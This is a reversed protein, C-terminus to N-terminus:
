KKKFISISLAPVTVSIYNKRDNVKGAKSQKVVKNNHGEGGFKPLDSSFIEKWKGESPVALKYNKVDVPTFNCIILLTDEPKSGRREFSIISRNADNASIWSFGDPDNDKEYLAPEKEKLHKLEEASLKKGQKLKQKISNTKAKEAM